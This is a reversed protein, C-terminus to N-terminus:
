NGSLHASTTMARSAELVDAVLGSEVGAAMSTGSLVIYRKGGYNDNVLLSPYATALYSGPAAPAALSQGPAAFDPKAFGDFWSPGRSSYNAILDDDPNITGQTKASAVTFASPANGPVLIGGYGVQNTAPNIGANGASGVVVSGSRPAPEVA